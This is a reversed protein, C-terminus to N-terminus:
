FVGDEVDRIQAMNRQDFVTMIGGCTQQTTLWQKTDKWWDEFSPYEMMCPDDHHLSNWLQKIEAFSVEGDRGYGLVDDADYYTIEEDGPNIIVHDAGLIDTSSEISEDYEEAFDSYNFEWKILNSIRSGIESWEKTWYAINDWFDEDPDYSLEPFTLTPIVCWIEKGKMEYSKFALELTPMNDDDKLCKVKLIIVSGEESEQLTGEAEYGCHYLQNNVQEVFEEAAAMRMDKM